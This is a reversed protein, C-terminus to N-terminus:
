PKIYFYKAFKSINKIISTQCLPKNHQDQFGSLEFPNRPNSDRLRRLLFKNSTFYFIDASIKSRNNDGNKYYQGTTYHYCLLNQNEQDLNSDKCSLLTYCTILLMTSFEIISKNFMYIM